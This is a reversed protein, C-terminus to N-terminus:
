TKKLQFGAYNLPPRKMETGSSLRVTAVLIEGDAEPHVKIVRGLKWRTPPVYDEKIIVVYKLM